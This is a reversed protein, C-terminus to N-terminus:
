PLYDPDINSASAFLNETAHLSIKKLEKIIKKIEARKSKEGYPCSTEGVYFGKLRCYRNIEYEKLYALPRIIDFEGGFMPLRIPMTSIKGHITMNMLMTEILDDMHHGLALRNFKLENMLKFLEKRRHWSCVFCPSKLNEPGIDMSFSRIYLAVGREQCFQNLYEINAKSPMNEAIIHAACVNYRIPIYKLRETITDLLVLSDKGGSLAVLVRDESLLLSHQNIAKGAIRRVQNIFKKETNNLM